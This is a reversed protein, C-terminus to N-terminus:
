PFVTWDVQGLRGAGWGLGLAAGKIASVAEQVESVVGQWGRERERECVM